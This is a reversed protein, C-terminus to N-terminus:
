SNFSHVFRCFDGIEDPNSEFHNGIVVLDAGGSIANVIQSHNKIGGGVILPIRVNARVRSIISHSVPNLAGSGAELYIAKMGLLEGALATNVALDVDNCAIPTTSSVRQTASVRGGDILIYGTPIVELGSSKIKKATTIHKGILFDPNRGSILSLLLLADAHRSIQNIDGPFLILPISTGSKIAEAILDIDGNLTSGGLFVFDPQAANVLDLWAPIEQINVKDPDLLVAIQKKNQSIEIM